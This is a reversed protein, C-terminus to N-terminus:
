RKKNLTNIKTQVINLVSDMRKNFQNDIQADIYTTDIEVNSLRSTFNHDNEKIKSILENNNKNCQTELAIIKSNLNAIILLMQRMDKKIEEFSEQSKDLHPKTSQNVDSDLSQPFTKVKISHQNTKKDIKNLFNVSMHSEDLLSTIQDSFNESDSSPLESEPIYTDSNM